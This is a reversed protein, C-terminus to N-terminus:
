TGGGKATGDNPDPIQKHLSSSSYPCIRSLIPVQGKESAVKQLWRVLSDHQGRRPSPLFVIHLISISPESAMSASSSGPLQEEGFM